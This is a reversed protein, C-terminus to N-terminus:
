FQCAPCSEFRCCRTKSVLVRGTSNGVNRAELKWSVKKEQIPEVKFTKREKIGMGRRAIVLAASTHRNLSYMNKFKLIGLIPTM